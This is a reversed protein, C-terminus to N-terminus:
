MNTIYLCMDDIHANMDNYFVCMVINHADINGIHLYTDDNDTEMKDIYVYIVFTRHPPVCGRVKTMATPPRTTMALFSAIFCDMCAVEVSSQKAASTHRQPDDNRPVFPSYKRLKM